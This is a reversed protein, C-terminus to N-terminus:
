ERRDPKGEDAETIRNMFSFLSTEGSTVDNNNGFHAYPLIKKKKTKMVDRRGRGVNAWGGGDEAEGELGERRPAERVRRTM